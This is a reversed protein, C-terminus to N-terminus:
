PIVRKQKIWDIVADRLLVGEERRPFKKGSDAWSQAVFDSTVLRYVRKPDLPATVVKEVRGSPDTLNALQDGPIELTVVRNDFPIVNWVHRALLEGAPLVDRVGGRNTFSFDVPVQDLMAREMLARVEIRSLARTARGIPVDVLASVKAEWKDIQAQIAPDAPYERTDVPIGTWEHSVIRRTATDYRLVMRGVQRGYGEAHIVFRGDVELPEKWPTHEHGIAAISVDPLERLISEAETKELHGLVIVMDARQKAEAVIPRLTEVTPAAHFPGLRDLTTTELVKELLAGIVAIRMGGADRIVYPPNVLRNGSTDLTNASVTPFNAVRMFDLIRRWGYDFEHNGLCNVDIGLSNAIEYDPLGRFVTSVPTGTVLDGAHLTLSAHAAARERQLLTALHAVGGIGDPDPLLRDHLDNFHLITLEHVTSQRCGALLLLASALLTRRRLALNM